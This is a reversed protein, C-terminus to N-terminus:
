GCVLAACEFREKGIKCICTGEHPCKKFAAIVERHLFRSDPWGDKLRAGAAELIDVLVSM